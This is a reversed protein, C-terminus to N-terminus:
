SIIQRNTLNSHSIYAYLLPFQIEDDGDETENEVLILNTLLPDVGRLIFIM